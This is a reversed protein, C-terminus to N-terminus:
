MSKINDINKWCQFMKVRAEWWQHRADFITSTLIPIGMIFRLRDDSRRLNIIPIGIGTLHLRRLSYFGLAVYLHTLIPEPLLSPAKLCNLAVESSTSTFKIQLMQEFILVNFSLCFQWWSASSMTLHMKKFSYTYIKILIESFNSGLIWFLLIGTNTWITAQCCRPSLGNDSCIATLKSICIHTM